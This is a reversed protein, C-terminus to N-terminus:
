AMGREPRAAVELFGVAFMVAVVPVWILMERYRSSFMGALLAGGAYAAFTEVLPQVDIPAPLWAKRRTLVSTTRTVINILVTTFIITNIGSINIGRACVAQTGMCFASLLIVTYRAVGQIPEGSAAWLVTLAGIVVLEYWLLRIVTRRTDPHVLWTAGLLTAVAVGIVFGILAATSRSAALLDGRGISIAILATNGTMASSFLDGLTLFTLVDTCGAGLSLAALCLNDCRPRKDM